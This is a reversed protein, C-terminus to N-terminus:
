RPRGCAKLDILPTKKTTTKTEGFYRTDVHFTALFATVFDTVLTANAVFSQPLLVQVSTIKLQERAKEALTARPWNRHAASGLGIPGSM